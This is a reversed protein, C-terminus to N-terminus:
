LTPNRTHAHAKLVNRSPSVTKHIFRLSALPLLAPRLAAKGHGATENIILVSCSVSHGSASIIELRQLRLSRSRYRVVCRFQQLSTVLTQMNLIMMLCLYRYIFYYLYLMTMIEEFQLETDFSENNNSYFLFHQLKPAGEYCGDNYLLRSLWRVRSSAAIIHLPWLIFTSRRM